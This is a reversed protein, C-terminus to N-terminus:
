LIGNILCDLCCGHFDDRFTNQVAQSNGANTINM